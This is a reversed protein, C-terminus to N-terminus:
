GALAEGCWSKCHLKGPRSEAIVCGTYPFGQRTAFDYSVNELIVPLM